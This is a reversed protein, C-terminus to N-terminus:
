NKLKLDLFHAQALQPLSPCGFGPWSSWNQRDLQGDFRPGGRALIEKHGYRTEIQRPAKRIQPLRNLTGLFLPLYQPVDYLEM